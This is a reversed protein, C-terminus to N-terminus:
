RWGRYIQAKGRCAFWCRIYSLFPGKYRFIYPQYIQGPIRAITIGCLIAGYFPKGCEKVYYDMVAPDRKMLISFRCM